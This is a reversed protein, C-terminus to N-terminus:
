ELRSKLLFTGFAYGRKVAPGALPKFGMFQRVLGNLMGKQGMVMAESGIQNLAVGL